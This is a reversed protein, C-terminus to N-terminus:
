HSESGRYRCPPCYENARRGAKFLFPPPAATDEEGFGVGVGEVTCDFDAWARRLARVILYALMVVPM